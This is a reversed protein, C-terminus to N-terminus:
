TGKRPPKGYISQYAKYFGASSRFGCAFAIDLVSHEPESRLMKEAHHLRIMRIYGGVGVGHLQRFCGELHNKSINMAQAVQPVSINERFHEWIYDAAGFAIRAMRQDSQEPFEKELLSCAAEFLHRATEEEGANLTSRLLELIQAMLPSERCHKPNEGYFTRLLFPFSSIDRSRFAFVDLKLGSNELIRRPIRDNLLLVDGTELRVTREGIQWICDGSIMRVIRLSHFLYPGKEGPSLRIPVYIIAM